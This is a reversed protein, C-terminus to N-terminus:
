NSAAAIDFKMDLDYPLNTISKELKFNSKFSVDKKSFLVTATFKVPIDIGKLKLNGEVDYNPQGDAVDLRKAKLVKFTAEKYKLLNLQQESRMETMLEKNFGADAIDKCSISQMDIYTFGSVLTKVDFQLNGSKFKIEGNHKKGDEATSAWSVVSKTANVQYLIPTGETSNVFSMISGLALLSFLAIRKRM